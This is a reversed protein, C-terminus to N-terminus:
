LPKWVLVLHYINVRSGQIAAWNWCLWVDTSSIMSSSQYSYEAPCAPCKQFSVSIQYSHMEKSQYQLFARWQKSHFHEPSMERQCRHGRLLRNSRSVIQICLLSVLRPPLSSLNLHVMHASTETKQPETLRWWLDTHSRSKSGRLCRPFTHFQECVIGM